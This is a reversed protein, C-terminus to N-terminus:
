PIRSNVNGDDEQQNSSQSNTMFEEEIPRCVFIMDFDDQGSESSVEEDDENPDKEHPDAFLKSTAGM